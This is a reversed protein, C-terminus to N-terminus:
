RLFRPGGPNNSGHIQQHCNQCERNIAYISQPNRPNGPHGTLNAHCQQCIRPRSMKLMFDNVSGHPDHCNACSERVPQHEFLFPGRKEAHCKYCTDNITADRLLAESYSGHPNHCNSCTMKGERLPMHGNRMIKARIDKHCQSCTDIETLKALQFKPTVNAMITHCNICALGRTEHTSGRWNNREGREHCALCIANNEEPTRRPDDPRFTIMNGVGRGGGAKVHESGPGHCNECEMTGKRVKGIKGMVTNAFSAAQGAHCTMCVQSGVAHAEIEGAPAEAKFAKAKAAKGAKPPAAQAFQLLKPQEPQAVDGGIERVFDRLAAYTQDDPGASGHPSRAAAGAADETGGIERVFNRLASYAPDEIPTFNHPSSAAGAVSPQEDGLQQVYSMLESYTESPDGGGHLPRDEAAVPRLLVLASLAL